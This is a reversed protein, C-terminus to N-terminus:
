QIHMIMLNLDVPTTVAQRGFCIMTGDRSMVPDVCKFYSGTDTYDERNAGNNDRSLIDGSYQQFYNYILKNDVVWGEQFVTHNGSGDNIFEHQNTGDVNMLWLTSSVEETDGRSYVIYNGDPSFCSYREMEESTTLQTVTGAGVEVLWIDSDGVSGTKFMDFVIKTGAANWAPHSGYSYVAELTGTEPDVLYIGARLAGPGYAVAIRNDVPSWAPDSYGEISSEPIIHDNTGDVNVIYVGSEAAGLSSLKIYAIQTGVANFSPDM